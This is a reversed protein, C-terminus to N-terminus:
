SVHCPFHSSIAVIGVPSGRIVTVRQVRCLSRAKLNGDSWAALFM